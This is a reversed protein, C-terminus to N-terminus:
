TYGVYSAGQSPLCATNIIQQTALPIPTDMRIIAIDNFLTTPNFNPHIVIRAATRNQTNTFSSPDWVGM